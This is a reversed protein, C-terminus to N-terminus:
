WPAIARAHKPRRAIYQDRCPSRGHAGGARFFQSRGMWVWATISRRPRQNYTRAMFAERERMGMSARRTSPMTRMRAMESPKKLSSMDGGDLSSPNIAKNRPMVANTEASAPKAAYRKPQILEDGANRQVNSPPYASELRRVNKLTQNEASNINALSCSRNSAMTRSTNAPPIAM